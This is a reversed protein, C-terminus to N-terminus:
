ETGREIRVVEDVFANMTESVKMETSRFVQAAGSIVEPMAGPDSRVTELKLRARGLAELGQRIELHLADLKKGQYKGTGPGSAERPKEVIKRIGEDFETM